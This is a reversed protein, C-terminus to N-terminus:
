EAQGCWGIISRAYIRAADRVQSLYVFEDVSHACGIDGPGITIAPIGRNTFYTADCSATFGYTQRLGAPIEGLVAARDLIMRKVIPSDEATEYAPWNAVWTLVPPNDRLWLDLKAAHQVQAAIEAKIDEGDVGPPYWVLVGIRANHALYGVSPAGSDAHLFAPTITFGGPPFAPHQKTLGWEQELQQLAQVILLAKEVANVGAKVGAGGARISPGRNGVHTGNGQIDIHLIHHGVSIPNISLPEPVSSPEAIIAADAIYGAELIADTGLEGNGTEEGVVAHIQLPGKLKIGLRELVAGAIGASILGSKMDTTGLGYLRDETLRADWPDGNHWEEPRLPPVTDLHGNIILSRGGGEGERKLIYNPREPDPAFIDLDFGFKQVYDAFIRGAKAEGGIVDERKIGPFLPNICNVRVMDRLVELAEPMLEDIAADIRAELEAAIQYTEDQIQTM